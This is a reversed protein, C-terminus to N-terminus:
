LKTIADAAKAKNNRIVLLTAVVGLVVGAIFCVLATM